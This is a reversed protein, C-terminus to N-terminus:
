GLSQRLHARTESDKVWVFTGRLARTMLIRYAQVVKLLLDEHVKGPPSERRAQNKLNTVGSEHIHGLDLTWKDQQWKLDEM